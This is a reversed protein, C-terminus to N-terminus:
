GPPPPAEALTAAVAAQVAAAAPWNDGSGRAPRVFRVSPGWAGWQAPDSPGLVSVLPAGVAAALHGPGTDNSIMLACQALLAAYTGLNVGELCHAAAFHERAQAQEGPGPCVVVDRGFTPLVRAAFDAFGPWAKDEGSWTGGSFPCIVVCGPRIGHRARLAAAEAQHAASVRLGISQPLPAEAGLLASALQWYVALEHAGQLRPVARALLFSRGEYAHGIARLGALRFELASSFSYPLCLANIRRTFGPDRARAEARLRRLLAIRERAAKPLAHVPWGHGALLDRAWGKGVLQLEYGAEALRALAPLGLTADGVWNRLRVILPGANRRTDPDPM